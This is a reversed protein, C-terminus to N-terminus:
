DQVMTIRGDVRPSIAYLDADSRRAHRKLITAARLVTEESTTLSKWRKLLRLQTFINRLLTPLTPCQEDDMLVPAGVFADFGDKGDILYAKSVVSYTKTLCLPAFHARGDVDVGEESGGNANGEALAHEGRRTNPKSRVLVSDKVIRSGPPLRPDFQFRVGDVTTALRKLARLVTRHCSVRM